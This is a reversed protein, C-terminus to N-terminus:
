QNINYMQYFKSEKKSLLTEPNGEETIKGGDLVFLKDCTKITSLRHAIVIITVSRKLKEIALKVKLESENDLASTAEDLILIKPKRLLARALIIRQRQGGSIHLGREGVMTDFKKPLSEIFDYINADQAAKKIDEDSYGDGYFTVNNKVSDNMLFMEQSVYGINERWSSLSIDNVDNKDILIKGENQHLLRLMLDVITSKGSGSPGILGTTEGKKISFTVGDLVSREKEFSFFVDSFQLTEAFSFPKSGIDEEKEKQLKNYFSLATRLYPETDVVALLNAQFQNLYQFIRYILYVVVVFAALNFDAKQYSILFLITIFILSIPHLLVGTTTTIRLQKVKLKMLGIFDGVSRMMVKEGAGFVKINKIGLMSENIYHAVRKNAIGTEKAVDRVKRVFPQFIFFSLLGTGLALFTTRADLTFAIVCYVIVSAGAMILTSMKQLITGAFRVDTMLVNELHGLKLRLFYPWSANFAETIIKKRFNFEYDATIKIKIFNFWILIFAKTIFLAMVFGILYTLNIDLNFFGFVRAIIGSVPDDMAVEEGTVFSFMPILANVGVGELIGGIFSLITLLIVEKKYDLILHRSLQILSQLKFFKLM